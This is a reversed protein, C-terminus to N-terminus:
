DRQELNVELIRGHNHNDHSHNMVGTLLFAFILLLAYILLKIGAPLRELSKM